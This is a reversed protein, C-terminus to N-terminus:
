ACRGDSISVVYLDGDEGADGGPGHHLVAIIAKPKDSAADGSATVAVSLAVDYHRRMILCM